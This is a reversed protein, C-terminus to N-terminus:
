NWMLHDATILTEKISSTIFTIHLQSCFYLKNLLDHRTLKNHIHDTLLSSHNTQQIYMFVTVSFVKM